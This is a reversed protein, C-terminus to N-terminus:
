APFIAHLNLMAAAAALAANKGQEPAAGAHAPVGTFIADVKTTALFGPTDCGIQGTKRLPGGLHMGLLFDVDDVIGKETMAKAGRVGEEAPQFILKLTGFLGEKQNVLVEAVALGIATHGDHGCSHMAGRNISAFGERWPRHNATEDEVGDVADM